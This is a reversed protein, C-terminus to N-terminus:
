SIVSLRVTHDYGVRCKWESFCSKLSLIKIPDFVPWKFTMKFRLLM